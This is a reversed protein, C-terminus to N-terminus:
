REREQLSTLNGISEPLTTLQNNVLDLYTLSKLNGISEPLTTLKNNDLYLTQLSKLDGISEPLTSIGCDFFGIGTIRQNEVSFGMKTKLGINPFCNFQKQTKDNIKKLYLKM